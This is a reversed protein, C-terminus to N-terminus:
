SFQVHATMKMPTSNQGLTHNRGHMDIKSILRAERRYLEGLDARTLKKGEMEYSQSTEVADIATQVADLQQGLTKAM